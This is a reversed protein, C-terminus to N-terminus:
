LFASVKAAQHFKLYRYRGGIKLIDEMTYHFESFGYFESNRYYISPQFVGNMSCPEKPCAVTMNLLSVVKQQCEEYNGTGELHYTDHSDVVTEKLNTPLCPDLIATAEARGPLRIHLLYM